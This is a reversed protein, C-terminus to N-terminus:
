VHNSNLFKHRYKCISNITAIYRQGDYNTISVLLSFQSFFNWFNARDQKTREITLCHADRRGNHKCMVVWIIEAPEHIRTHSIEWRDRVPLEAVKTHKDPFVVIFRNATVIEPFAEPQETHRFCVKATEHDFLCFMQELSTTRGDSFLGHNYPSKKISHNELVGSIRIKNHRIYM